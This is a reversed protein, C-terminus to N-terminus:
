TVIYLIRAPKPVAVAPSLVCRYGWSPNQSRLSADFSANSETTCVGDKKFPGYVMLTGGPKLVRGAGASGCQKMTGGFRHQTCLGPNGHLRM